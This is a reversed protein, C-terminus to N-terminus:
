NRKMLLVSVLVNLKMHFYASGVQSGFVSAVLGSTSMSSFLLAVDKHKATSHFTQLKWNPAASRYMLVAARLHLIRCSIIVRGWTVDRRHGNLCSLTPPLTRPWSLRESSATWVANLQEFWFLRNMLLTLNLNCVQLLVDVMKKSFYNICSWINCSRTKLYDYCLLQM